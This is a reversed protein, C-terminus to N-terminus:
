LYVSDLVFELHRGVPADIMSLYLVRFTQCVLNYYSIYYSYRTYGDAEYIDYRWRRTTQSVNVVESQFKTDYYLWEHM